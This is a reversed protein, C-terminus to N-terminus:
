LLPVQRMIDLNSENTRRFDLSSKVKQQEERRNRMWENILFNTWATGQSFILDMASLRSTGLLRRVCPVFISACQLAFGTGIALQLPRNTPPRENPPSFITQHDSRCSFAHLLQASTLSSFALTQAKPGFGYKAVGVAFNLLSGATMLLAERGIRVSDLRSFLPAHSDRPARGLVDPAPAEVSLALAPFVDTVLNIWLLQMASLPHAGAAAVAGFVVLVESLNTALIFHISKQVNDYTTRGQEIASLLTTLDDDKLIIDGVERAMETGSKGMAIGVDAARLAPGDNIGDGTMAVVKGTAQLAEVIRLKHSPTVRAFVDVNEVLRGLSTMDEKELASSDMVRVEERGSLGLEKALAFATLSQDGTLMVTKIGARHFKAVLEKVGPRPPDMMAVLGVWVLNGSDLNPSSSCKRYAIALVRLARQAMRNNEQEIQTKLEKTLPRIDRIQDNTQIHSCQALVDEPRGKVALLFDGHPTEHLTSMWSKGESRYATKKRPYSARIHEVDVKYHIGLEVLANETPSGHRELTGQHTSVFSSDNCLIAIHVLWNMEPDLGAFEQDILVRNTSHTFIEVVTMKNLTLTGTKDLCIVQVAGLTEVADIKRVLMNRKRMKVVTMALTTTAVAPLGEPIAAVALSVASKLMELFGHKRLLGVVLVGGCVVGTMLVMRNGLRHLQKQLPTEPQTADSLSQQIRGIETSEGTAITIAKGRGTSVVTGRYVMNYRDALSQLGQLKQTIKSVPTSEGTLASEDVTLQNTEIVRADAPIQDGAHLILLDGPVLLEAPLRLSEGDRIVYAEKVSTRTLAKITRSTKSETVYGICANLLVVGMMITADAVGGTAASLVSSGILLLVPLSGLQSVFLRIASTAQPEPLRNPGFIRLRSEAVDAPLGIENSSAWYSIIKHATIAHWQWKTPLNHSTPKKPTEGTFWSKAKKLFSRRTFDDYEIDDVFSPNFTSHPDQLLNTIVHKTASVLQKIDKEPDFIVLVSATLASGSARRIGEQQSLERQVLSTLRDHRYLRPIKLRARGKSSSQIEVSPEAIAEAHM